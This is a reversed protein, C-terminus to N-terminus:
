HAMPLFTFFIGGIGGDSSLYPILCVYYNLSEREKTLKYFSVPVSLSDSISSTDLDPELYNIAIKRVMTKKRQM